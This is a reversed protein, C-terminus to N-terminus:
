LPLHPGHEEVAGIPLIVVSSENVKEKFESMTLEDLYM